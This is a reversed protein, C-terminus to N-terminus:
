GGFMAESEAEPEYAIIKQHRLFYYAASNRHVGCLSVATRAVFHEIPSGQKHKSLRSKRM